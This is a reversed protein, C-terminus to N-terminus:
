RKELYDACERLVDASYVLGTTDLEVAISRLQTPWSKPTVPCQPAPAAGPWKGIYTGCVGCSYMWPVDQCRLTFTVGEGCKPCAQPAGEAPAPVPKAALFRERDRGASGDPNGVTFYQPVAPAPDTAQEDRPPCAHGPFYPRGCFKCSSHSMEIRGAM